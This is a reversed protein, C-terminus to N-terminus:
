FIAADQVNDIIICDYIGLLMDFPRILSNGPFRVNEAHLATTEVACLLLLLWPQYHQREM